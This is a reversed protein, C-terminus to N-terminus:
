RRRGVLALAFLACLVAAICPGTSITGVESSLALGGVVGIL